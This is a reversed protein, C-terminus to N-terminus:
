DLTSEFFSNFSQRTMEALEILQRQPSILFQCQHGDFAESAFPTLGVLQQDRFFDVAAKLDQVLFCVHYFGVKIFQEIPTGSKTPKVLELYIGPELEIFCVRVHQSAVDFLKSHRQFGLTSSYTRLSEEISAM